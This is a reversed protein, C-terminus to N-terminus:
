RAFATALDIMSERLELSEAVDLVDALLASKRAAVREGPGADEQRLTSEAFEGRGASSTPSGATGPASSGCSGGTGAREAASGSCPSTSCCSDGALRGPLSPALGVRAFRLPSKSALLVQSRGSVRLV